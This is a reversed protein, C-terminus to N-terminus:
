HLCETIIYLSLATCNYSIEQHNATKYNLTILAIRYLIERITYWIGLPWRASVRPSGFPWFCQCSCWPTDFWLCSSQKNLLKNMNVVFFVDLSHIHRAHCLHPWTMAYYFTYLSRRHFINTCAYDHCALLAGMNMVYDYNYWTENIILM